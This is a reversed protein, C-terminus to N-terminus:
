STKGFEKAFTLFDEFGIQGNGDLDYKTEYGPIGRVTGFHSAFLLFDNFDVKGDQTFDGPIGVGAEVELKINPTVMGASGFDVKSLTITTSKFTPSLTVIVTGVLKLQTGSYSKPAGFVVASTKLENGNIANIIVPFETSIGQFQRSIASIDPFSLTIEVGQANNYESAYVEIAVKDGQRASVSLTESQRGDGANLQIDTAVKINIVVQEPVQASVVITTLPANPDNSKITLTARFDGSIKPQFIAKLSLTEGPRITAQGPTVTLNSNSSAIETIILDSQGLNQVQFNQEGRSGIKVVNGFNVTTNLLRIIPSAKAKGKGFMTIDLIKQDPDNTIVKLSGNYDGAEFPTFRVSLGESTGPLIAYPLKFPFEIASFNDFAVTQPDGVFLSAYGERYDGDKIRLVIKQNIWFKLSDGYSVVRLTNKGRKQVINDFTWAVLDTVIGTQGLVKDISYAGNGTIFFRYQGLLSAFFRMGYGNNDIGSKWETEVTLDLDKEFLKNPSMLTLFNSDDGTLLLRGDQTSWSGATPKSWSEMDKANNFTYLSAAGPHLNLTGNSFVVDSKVSFNANTQQLEQIFLTAQGKNFIELSVTKSEGVIVEGMNISLTSLSINPVRQQFNVRNIDVKGYGYINDQGRDGLDIAQQYLFDRLRTPTFYQPDSSKILAAVGAVHPAAASTGSFGRSGYAFTSVGDPGMIDPKIRGDVTPGRSSFDEPIGSQWNQYNIAGVALAGKADAPVGITGSISVYDEFNHNKSWVKIVNSRANASKWVSIGYKGSETVEFVIHEVPSSFFQTTESKDVFTVKGDDTVKSLILDYDQSTTPWENWTLWIEIEDGVKVNLLTLFEIDKGDFSNWGDSDRDNFFGSFQSKAYNGASNVWLIGHDFADNVVDCARGLGDGFGLGLWSGSYSIIDITDRIALDKANEFDVFDDIKLFTIDAGPAIDHVIEACATGHVDDTYIGRGTFDIYNWTLPFEGNNGAEQGKEFGSDIIGVKVGQGDYGAIQAKIAGIQSVSESTVSNFIPRMPEEAFSVGPIESLLPLSEIPISVRMLSKSEALVDAGIQVLAGKDINAALLGSEPVLVVIVKDPTSSQVKYVKARKAAIDRHGDRWSKYIENLMGDLRPIQESKENSINLDQSHCPTNVLVLNGLVFILFIVNQYIKAFFFKKM